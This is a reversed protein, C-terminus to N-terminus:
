KPAASGADASRTGEPASPKPKQRYCDRDKTITPPTYREEMRLCRVPCVEVCANCSCCRLRDINWEKSARAVMIADTPCRKQCLMCFICKEIEIEIKGRTGAVHRAEKIKTPYRRTVPPSFLNSLVTKTMKFVSVHRGKRVASAPILPSSSFPFM